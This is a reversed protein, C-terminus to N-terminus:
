DDVIMVDSSGLYARVFAKIEIVLNTILLSVTCNLSYQSLHITVFSVRKRFEWSICLTKSSSIWGVITLDLNM